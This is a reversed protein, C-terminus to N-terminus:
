ISAAPKTKLVGPSGRNSAALRPKGAKSGQLSDRMGGLGLCSFVGTWDEGRRGEGLHKRRKPPVTTAPMSPRPARYKEKRQLPRDKSFSGGLTGSPLPMTCQLLAAARPTCDFEVCACRNVRKGM